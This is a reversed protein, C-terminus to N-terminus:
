VIEVFSGTPVILNIGFGNSFATSGEKRTIWYVLLYKVKGKEIGVPIRHGVGVESEIVKRLSQKKM